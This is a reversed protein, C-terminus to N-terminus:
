CTPLNMQYNQKKEKNRMELRKRIQMIQKIMQHRLARVLQIVIKMKNMCIKKMLTLIMLRILLQVTMKMRKKKQKLHRTLHM